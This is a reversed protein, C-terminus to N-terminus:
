IEFFFLDWLNLKIDITEGAQFIKNENFSFFM